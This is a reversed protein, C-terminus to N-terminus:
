PINQRVKTAKSAASVKRKFRLVGMLGGAGKSFLDEVAHEYKKVIRISSKVATFPAKTVHFEIESQQSIM